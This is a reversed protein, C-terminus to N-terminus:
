LGDDDSRRKLDRAVGFLVISSFLLMIFASVVTAFGSGYHLPIGVQFASLQTTVGSTTWLPIYCKTPSQCALSYDWTTWLAFQTCAFIAALLSSAAATYGTGSESAASATAGALAAFITSLISMAQNGSVVSPQKYDYGGNSNAVCMGYPKAWNIYISSTVDSCPLGNPITSWYTWGGTFYTYPYNVRVNAFATGAIFPGMSYTQWSSSSNSVWGYLMYPSCSAFLLLIFACWNCTAAASAAARPNGSM